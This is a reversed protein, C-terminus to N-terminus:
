PLLTALVNALAAAIRRRRGTRRTLPHNAPRPPIDAASRDAMAMPKAWPLRDGCWGCLGPDPNDATDFDTVHCCRGHPCPMM